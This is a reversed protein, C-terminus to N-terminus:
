HQVRVRVDDDMGDGAIPWAKPSCVINVTPPDCGDMRVYRIFDGWVGALDGYCRWWRGCQNCSIVHYDVNTDLDVDDHRCYGDIGLGRRARPFYGPYPYARNASFNGGRPQGTEFVIDDAIM